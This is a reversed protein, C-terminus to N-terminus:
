KEKDTMLEPNDHINGIVIGRAVGTYDAIVGLSSLTDGYTGVYFGGRSYRVDGDHIDFTEKVDETLKLYDGEFIKNGRIDFMGTFQGVTEPIVPFWDNYATQIHAYGEPYEQYFGEAWEDRDTRKGRFLIKRM